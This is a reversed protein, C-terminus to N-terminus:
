PLSIVIEKEAYDSGSLYTIVVCGDGTFQGDRVVDAAGQACDELPYSEYYALRDFMNQIVVSCMGDERQVYVVYEDQAGLVYYFTESIQGHKTDCFVAWNTSRGTGTQVAVGVVDETVRETKCKEGASVIILALVILVFFKRM